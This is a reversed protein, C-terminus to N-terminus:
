IPEVWGEVETFPIDDFSKWPSPPQFAAQLSELDEGESDSGPNPNPHKLSVAIQLKIKFIHSIHTKLLSEVADREYSNSWVYADLSDLVAEVSIDSIEEIEQLKLAPSEVQTEPSPLNM